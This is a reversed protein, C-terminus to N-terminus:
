GMEAAWRILCFKTSLNPIWLREGGDPTSAQPRRDKTEDISSKPPQSAEAIKDWTNKSSICRKRCICRYENM